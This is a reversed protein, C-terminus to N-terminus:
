DEPHPKVSTIKALGAVREEYYASLLKDDFKQVVSSYSTLGINKQISHRKRSYEVWEPDSVDRVIVSCEDNIRITDKDEISYSISEGCLETLSSADTAKVLTKAVNDTLRIPFRRETFKSEIFLILETRFHGKQVWDFVLREFYGGGPQFDSDDVGSIFVAYDAITAEQTDSAEARLECVPASETPNETLTEQSM